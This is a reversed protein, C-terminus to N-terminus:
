LVSDESRGRREKSVLSKILWHQQKLM